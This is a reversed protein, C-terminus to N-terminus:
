KKMEEDSQRLSMISRKEHSVVEGSGADVRVNVINFQNTVITFNFVQADLHQLITIVKTVEEVPSEKHLLELATNKADAYAIVVKELDLEKIKQGKNFAEDEPLREVPETNFVVLKEAEPLYYGVQWEHDENTGHM